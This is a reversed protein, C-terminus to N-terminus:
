RLAPDPCLADELFKKKNSIKYRRSKQELKMIIDNMYRKVQQQKELELKENADSTLRKKDGVEECILVKVHDLQSPLLHCSVQPVETSYLKDYAKVSV